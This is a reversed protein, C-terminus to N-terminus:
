TKQVEQRFFNMTRVTSSVQFKKISTLMLIPTPIKRRCLEQAMVFGDDPQEMIVDLIIVEPQFEKVAGMGERTNYAASTVHGARYPHM